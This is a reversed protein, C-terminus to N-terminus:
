KRVNSPASGSCTKPVTDLMDTSILGCGCSHPPRTRIRRQHVRYCIISFQVDLSPPNFPLLSHVPLPSLRPNCPNRPNLDTYDAFDAALDTGEAARPFLRHM